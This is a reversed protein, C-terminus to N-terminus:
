SQAAIAPKSRFAGKVWDWWAQLGVSQIGSLQYIQNLEEEHGNFRPPLTLVAHTKEGDVKLLEPHLLGRGVAYNGEPLVQQRAPLVLWPRYNLVLRGRADRTLRGYSRIPTEDIAKATFVQNQEPDPKTRASRFTVYDWAFVTGFVTLRLSWGALFYSVAIIILAWAAGVYPDAFSTLTVSSLLALRVSKLAADVTTFPSVIILVNIVHSVMWVVFFAMIAVPVTIFSLLSTPNFAALLVGQYSAQDADAAAQAILAIIPVFAGAAVLASIKNEFVEAIDLPKKLATPLAAGATDKVFVLTVLLLAPVWFWPQAFWPLSARKEPPTKSYKWAGIAGVGLLPSIAVGTITSIAQAVEVGPPPKSGAAPKSTTSAATSNGPTAPQSPAAQLLTGGLISLGLLVALVPRLLTKM